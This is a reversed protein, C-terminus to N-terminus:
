ATAPVTQDESPEETIAFNFQTAAPDSGNRVVSASSVTVPFVAMPNGVADGGDLFVVFGTTDRPMLTRADDGDQSNYLTLSSDDSSVMGSVKGTFRSGWDGADVLDSTTNFGSVGDTVLESTLDTGADIESRTLATYDVATPVFYVKDIGPRIYRTTRALATAM